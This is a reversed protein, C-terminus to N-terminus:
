KVFGLAARRRPAQLSTVVSEYTYRLTPVCYCDIAQVQLAYEDGLAYRMTDYQQYRVIADYPKHM